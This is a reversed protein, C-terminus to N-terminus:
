ADAVLPSGCNPCDDLPSDIGFSCNACVVTPTVGGPGLVRWRVEDIRESVEHLLVRETEEDADMALMLAAMDNVYLRRAYAYDQESATGIAHEFEAGALGDLAAEWRRELDEFADPVAELFEESPQRRLFPYAIVLAAIVALAISTAVFM